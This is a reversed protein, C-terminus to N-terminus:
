GKAISIVEAVARPARGVESGPDQFEDRNGAGVVQDRLRVRSGDITNSATDPVVVPIYMGDYVGKIIGYNVLRKLVKLAENKSRTGAIM